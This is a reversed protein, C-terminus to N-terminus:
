CRQENAPSESLKTESYIKITQNVRVLELLM